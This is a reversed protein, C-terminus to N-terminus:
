TLDWEGQPPELEVRWGFGKRNDVLRVWRPSFEYLRSKRVAPELTADLRFKTRYHDLIARRKRVPRAHGRMQVGRLDEWKDARQFVAASVEAGSGIARSHLSGASSLWYLKLGSGRVFYLPACHPEGSPTLVSVVLAWEADLLAVVESWGSM